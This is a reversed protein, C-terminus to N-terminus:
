FLSLDLLSLDFLSLDFLSLDFLSLDFLLFNFLSFDFLSFDFLSFDFLSLDFLLLNFLLLLWCLIALFLQAIPFVVQRKKVQQEEILSGRVVKECKWCELSELVKKLSLFLNQLLKNSYKLNISNTRLSTAKRNSVKGSMAKQIFSDRVVKEV